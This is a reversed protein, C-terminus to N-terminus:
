AQRRGEFEEDDRRETLADIDQTQRIEHLIGALAVLHREAKEVLKETPNKKRSGDPVSGVSARVTGLACPTFDSFSFVAGALLPRGPKCQNLCPRIGSHSVAHERLPDRVFQSMM